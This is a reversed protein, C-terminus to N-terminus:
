TIRYLTSLTQTVFNFFGRCVDRWDQWLPVAGARHLVTANIEDGITRLQHAVRRIVQEQVAEGGPARHRPSAWSLQENQPLLDPLPGQRSSAEQPEERLSDSQEGSFVSAREERRHCLPSPPTSSSSSSSSWPLQQHTQPQDQGEPHPYPVPYSMYLAQLPHLHHHNQHLHLAGPGTVSGTTITTTTLMGPWDYFPRPLEMRCSSHRPLPGDGPEGGTEGASEMTEARAM